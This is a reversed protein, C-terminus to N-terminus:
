MKIIHYHKVLRLLFNPLSLFSIFFLKVSWKIQPSPVFGVNKLIIFVHKITKLYPTYIHNFYTQPVIYNGLYFKYDSMIRLGHFHFVIMDSFSYNMANWPALIIECNGLIHVENSFRLPWEDLYKQDGFKNEEFKNYCWDICKDQWDKRISESDGRIFSIFQVCYKGSTLSHDYFPSYNHRTVLVSKGSKDFEDFIKNPNDFFFMDADLYTVRNIKPDQDFVFKFTYPSLTWCYETFSRNNKAELLEKTELDELKLPIIYDLNLKLIVEYCKRDICIVWLKFDSSYKELSLYLSIGQPLFKSDFVTVYHETM